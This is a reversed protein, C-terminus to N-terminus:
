EERDLFARVDQRSGPVSSHNTWAWSANLYLRLAPHKFLELVYQDMLIIKVHQDFLFLTVINSKTQNKHILESHLLSNVEPKFLDRWVIWRADSCRLFNLPAPNWSGHNM